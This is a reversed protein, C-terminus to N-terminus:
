GIKNGFGQIFETEGNIYQLKGSPAKEKIYELLDQGNVKMLHNEVTIRDDQNGECNKIIKKM